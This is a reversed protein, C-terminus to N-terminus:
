YHLDGGSRLDIKCFLKDFDNCGRRLRNLPLHHPVGFIECWEILSKTEGNHTLYICTSRNRAQVKSTTWRCNHPAYGGNNDIRDLTLGLCWGHELSWRLFNEFSYKWETCVEINKAHYHQYSANNTDYCRNLMRKWARYISDYEHSSLGVSQRLGKFSHPRM